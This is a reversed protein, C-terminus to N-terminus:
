EPHQEKAVALFAQAAHSLDGVRRYILRLQRVLRVQPIRVAALKGSAIESLACRKPLLAVGMRL